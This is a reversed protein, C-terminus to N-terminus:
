KVLELKWPYTYPVGKSVSVTAIIQFVIAALWIILGLPLTICWGLIPIWGLLGGLIFVLIYATIQFNLAEKLQPEAAPTDDKKLLWLLLPALIPFLIGLGHGLMAFTRADGEPLLGAPAPEGAPPVAEDVPPPTVPDNDHPPMAENM